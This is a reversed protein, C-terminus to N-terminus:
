AEYRQTPDPISYTQVNGDKYKIEVTLNKPYASGGRSFAFKARNNGDDGYSTFHGEEIQNGSSDKLVITDVLPGILNPSLVALRGDGSTPKFLFGDIGTGTFRTGSPTFSGSSATGVSELGLLTAGGSAMIQAKTLTSESLKRVAAATTGAVFADIKSKAGQAATAIAAVAKTPDDAGGRDDYLAATNTDLQAADFSQAYVKDGEEETLTGGQVLAKLAGKAADEFPVYGDGKKLASMQKKLEDTYKNVVDDGKLGKLSEAIAGAFLEEESCESAGSSSINAKLYEEFSSAAASTAPATTSTNKVDSAQNTSTKQTTADVSTISSM